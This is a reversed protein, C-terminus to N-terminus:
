YHEGVDSIKLLVKTNKGRDMSHDLAEDFETSLEYETVAAALKGSSVLKGITEVLNPIKKKNENMWKRANFGRVRLNNFVWTKWNWQPSKGSLCGYIILQGNDALADSLRISSEGGVADLGLKPKAFFKLKELEAQM